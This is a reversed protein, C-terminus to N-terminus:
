CAPTRATQCGISWFECDHASIEPQSARAEVEGDADDGPEVKQKEAIVLADHPTEQGQTGPDPRERLDIGGLRAQFPQGLGLLIVPRRDLAREVRHTTHFTTESRGRLYRRRRTCHRSNRHHWGTCAKNYLQLRRLQNIIPDNGDDVMNHTVIPPLSQNKLAFVRRKLLIKDENSLFHTPDVNEGGRLASEYIRKGIRQQIENVTERLQKTVAQGKLAEVNFSRTAAPM